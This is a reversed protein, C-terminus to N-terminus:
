ARAARCEARRYTRRQQRVGTSPRHDQHSRDHPYHEQSNPKHSAYVSTSMGTSADLLPAWAATSRTMTRVAEVITASTEDAMPPADRRWAGRRMPGGMLERTNAGEGEPARCYRSATLCTRRSNDVTPM